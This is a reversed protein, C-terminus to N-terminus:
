ETRLEDYNNFNKITILPIVFVLGIMLIAIGVPILIMEITITNRANFM